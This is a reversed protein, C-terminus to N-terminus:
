MRLSGRVRLKASRHVLWKINIPAMRARKHAITQMLYWKHLHVMKESIFGALKSRKNKSTSSTNRETVWWTTNKWVLHICTGKTVTPSYANSNTETTRDIMFKYTSSLTLGRHSSSTAHKACMLSRERTFVSIVSWTRCRHSPRTAATTNAGTPSRKITFARMSKFHHTSHLPRIACIVNSRGTKIILASM